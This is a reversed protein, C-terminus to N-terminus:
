YNVKNLPAAPSHETVTKSVCVCVVSCQKLSNKDETEIKQYM